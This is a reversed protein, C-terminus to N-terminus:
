YKFVSFLAPLSKVPATDPVQVGVSKKARRTRSPRTPKLLRGSAFIQSVDTEYFFFNRLFPVLFITSSYPRACPTRTRQLRIAGITVTIIDVSLQPRLPIFKNPSFTFFILLYKFLKCSISVLNTYAFTKSILPTPEFSPLSNPPATTTQGAVLTLSALAVLASLASHAMIAVLYTFLLFLFPSSLRTPCSLLSFFAHQCAVTNIAM